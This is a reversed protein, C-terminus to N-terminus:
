PKVPLEVVVSSSRSGRESYAGFKRRDTLVIYYAARPGGDLNTSGAFSVGKIGADEKPDPTKDLASDGVNGSTKRALIEVRLFTEGQKQVDPLPNGNFDQVAEKGVYGIVYGAGANDSLDFEVRRRSCQNDVQVSAPKIEGTGFGERSKPETNWAEPWDCVTDPGGGGQWPGCGTLALAAALALGITRSLKQGKTTTVYRAEQKSPTAM